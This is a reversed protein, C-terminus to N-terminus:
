FFLKWVQRAFLCPVLLHQITEDAQDCVPCACPDPLGWKALRNATLCRNNVTLRLSFKCQLPTWSKGFENGLYLNSQDLSIHTTHQSVPTTALSQKKLFFLVALSAVM